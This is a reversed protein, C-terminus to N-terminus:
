RTETEGKINTQKNKIKHYVNQFVIQCIKDKHVKKEFRFFIKFHEAISVFQLIWVVSDM